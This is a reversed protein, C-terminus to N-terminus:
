PCISCSIASFIPALISNVVYRMYRAQTNEDCSDLHYREMVETLTMPSMYTNVFDQYNKLVDRHKKLGFFMAEEIQSEHGRFNDIFSPYVDPNLNDLIVFADEIFPSAYGSGELAYLMQRAARCRSSFNNSM